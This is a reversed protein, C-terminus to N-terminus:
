ETARPHPDCVGAIDRDLGASDVTSLHVREPAICGMEVLFLRALLRTQEVQHPDAAPAMATELYRACQAATMDLCSAYLDLWEGRAELRGRIRHWAAVGRADLFDAPATTM